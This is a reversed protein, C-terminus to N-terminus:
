YAHRVLCPLLYIVPLVVSANAQKGRAKPPPQQPGLTEDDGGAVSEVVRKRKKADPAKAAMPDIAIKAM